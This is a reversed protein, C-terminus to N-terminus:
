KNRYAAGGPEYQREINCNKCYGQLGDRSASRAHFDTVPVLHKKKPCFKKSVVIPEGNRGENTNM